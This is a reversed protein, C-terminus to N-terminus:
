SECTGPKGVTSEGAQDKLADADAELLFGQRRLENVQQTVAKVYNGHNRFRPEDTSSGLAPECALDVMNGTLIAFQPPIGPPLTSADSAIFRARGVAVDPLRVGGLANLDGDRAIGTEFGYVPDTQGAPAADILTSPPPEVGSRVWVDGAVFLARTVANHDLPNTAAPLHAAGALEYVRYGPEGVARRFEQADSVVQDGESGVFLVRGVGGIPQFNGSLFDFAAEGGFPAHWLAVHLLTLDFPSPSGMAEVARQVEMLVAASQSVGYAYRRDMQGLIEAAFPQSTLAESFQVIIEEDLTGTPNPFGPNAVPQGALMLGSATPDLINFAHEGFGVAAYSFGNGFLLDRGLVADRGVTGFGFHPPEVLVTGNGQSPDEPAIIEYPMRFAGLSTAGAFFGTHRVYAIGNFTGFPASADDTFIALSPVQKAAAAGDPGSPEPPAAECAVFALAALALGVPAPRRSRERLTDQHKDM